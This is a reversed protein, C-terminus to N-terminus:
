WNGVDKLFAPDPPPPAPKKRNGEDEPGRKRKRKPEYMYGQVSHPFTRVEEEEFDAMEGQINTKPTSRYLSLLDTMCFLASPAVEPKLTPLQM